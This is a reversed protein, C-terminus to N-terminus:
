MGIYGYRRNRENINNIVRRADQIKNKHKLYPEILNTFRYLDSKRNITLIWYDNNRFYGDKGRYGKKTGMFLRSKINLKELQEQIQELLDKNYNGISFASSRGHKVKFLFFSGEADVFGALLPLTLIRKKLAWTPFKDYKKLLFSFTENVGCEIQTKGSKSPKSIWVRGYPSFLSKILSIQRPKTSGCDISITESNKYAKRVRLDGISFGILYAKEKLNESFPARHTKIHAASLTKIPLGFKKIRADITSYACHYIKAIKRSSLGEEIYLKYLDVKSIDAMPLGPKRVPIDCEHMRINITRASCNLLKGIEHVSLGKEWYLVMLKEPPIYFRKAGM